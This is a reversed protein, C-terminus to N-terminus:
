KPLGDETRMWPSWQGLRDDDDQWYCVIKEDCHKCVSFLTNSSQGTVNDMDPKHSALTISCTFVSNEPYSELYTKM